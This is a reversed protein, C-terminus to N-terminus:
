PTEEEKVREVPVCSGMPIGHKQAEAFNAEMEAQDEDTRYRNYAIEVGRRIKESLPNAYLVGFFVENLGSGTCLMPHTHGQRISFGEEESRELIWVEDQYCGSLVLPCQTSALVNNPFEQRLREVLLRQEKPHMGQGLDAFVYDRRKNAIDLHVLFQAVLVADEGVIVIWRSPVERVFKALAGLALRSDSTKVRHSRPEFYM